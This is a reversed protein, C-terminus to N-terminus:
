RMRTPRETEVSWLERRLVCPSVVIYNRLSYPSLLSVMNVSLIRVTRSKAKCTCWPWM